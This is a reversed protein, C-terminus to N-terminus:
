YKSIGKQRQSGSVDQNNWFHTAEYGLL